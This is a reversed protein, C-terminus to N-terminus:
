SGDKRVSFRREREGYQIMNCRTKCLSCVFHQLTQHFNANLSWVFSLILGGKIVRIGCIFSPTYSATYLNENCSTDRTWRSEEVFQGSASGTSIWWCHSYTGVAPSHVLVRASGTYVAKDCATSRVYNNESTKNKKAIWKKNISDRRIRTAFVRRLKQRM